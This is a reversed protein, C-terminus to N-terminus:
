LDSGERKVARCSSCVGELILQCGAIERKDPIFESINRYMKGVEVAGCKKCVYYILVKNTRGTDCSIAPNILLYKPWGKSGPVVAILRKKMFVQLARYVSARDLKGLAIKLIQSANITGKHEYMIRFVMIRTNTVYISKNKLLGIIETNNISVDM